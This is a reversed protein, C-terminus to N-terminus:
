NVLFVMELIAFIESTAAAQWCGLKDHGVAILRVYGLKQQLYPNGGAQQKRHVNHRNRLSM